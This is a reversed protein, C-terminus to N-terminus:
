EGKELLKLYDSVPMPRYFYYGQVLEFGVSQLFDMEEKTEVGEIISDMGLQKAMFALSSLLAEKRKGTEQYQAISKLDIKLVDIDMNSLINLTSYASGFDDLLIPFGSERLRHVVRLYPMQQDLGVSETIELELLGKPLGYRKTMSSIEECLNHELLDIRSVNVSIPVTRGGAALQDHLLRCTQEWVFSDLRYIFGNKELIPIFDVPPINGFVPHEWRVLAEAGVVKGTAMVCKPQLLIYFQGEKLAATMDNTIRQEWLMEKRMSSDYYAYRRRYNGRITRAAMNARDIMIEVDERADEIVYFGFKLVLEYSPYFENLRETCFQVFREERVGDHPFCLAFVDARIRGYVLSIGKERKDLDRLIRGISALVEDGQKMGLLDNILQFREIDMRMIVYTGTKDGDLLKRVCRYFVEERYVETNRDLKLNSDM